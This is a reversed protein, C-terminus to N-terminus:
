PILVVKGHTHRAEVLEFAAQLDALPFTAAIPLELLGTAALDALHALTEPSTGAMSADTRAGIEAAKGFAIVTNLRRPPVVVHEAHGARDWTWGLVEAGTGVVVGAFDGGQGSPFTAPFSAAPAGSRIAAQGPNIGAAKVRVLVGGPGSEPVPAHDVYLVQRGGYRDFRVARM